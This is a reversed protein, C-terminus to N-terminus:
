PAPDVLGAKRFGEARVKCADCIGCPHPPASVPNYCSWTLGFPVQLRQGERIVEHKRLHVLPAVVQVPNSTAQLALTRFAKFYDPRCDPYGAHDDANAGIYVASAGVTEAYALAYALFITNRAPVYTPAIGEALEAATRNVPIPRAGTLASVGFERLDFVIRARGAVGLATAVRDAADLEPTHTQGYRFSLAFARFGGELAVALAVASDLGGSLLVVAHPRPSM